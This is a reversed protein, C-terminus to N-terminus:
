FRFLQRYAEVVDEVLDGEEGEEADGEMEEDGEMKEEDEAGAKAAELADMQAKWWMEGNEMLTIMFAAEGAMHQLELSEYAAVSAAAAAQNADVPNTKISTSYANDHGLFMMIGSFLGALGGVVPLVLLWMILNIEVAIGLISLLQTISLISMLALTTYM